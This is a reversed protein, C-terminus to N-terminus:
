DSHCDNILKKIKSSMKQCELLSENFAIESTDSELLLFAIMKTIRFKDEVDEEIM